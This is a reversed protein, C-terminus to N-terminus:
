KAILPYSSPDKISNVSLDVDLEPWFLHNPGLRQLNTIKKVSADRFWPFDEFSLFHETGDLYIWFGHESLNTIEVQSTSKGLTESKM